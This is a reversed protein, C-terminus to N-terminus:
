SSKEVVTELQDVLSHTKEILQKNTVPLKESVEYDKLILSITEREKRLLPYKKKFLRLAQRNSLGFFPIHLKRTLYTKLTNLLEHPPNNKKDLARISKYYQSEPSLNVEYNKLEDMLTKLRVTKYVSRFILAVVFLFVTIIFITYSLPWNLELLQYSYPKPPAGEKSEIVSDVQFEINKLTIYQAKDSLVHDSKYLIYDSKYQGPVYSVVQLKLGDTVKEIKRLQLAYKLSPDFQLQNKDLDIENPVLGQCNLEFNRGVTIQNDTLGSVNPISVACQLEADM